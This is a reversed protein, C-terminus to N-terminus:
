LNQLTGAEYADAIEQFTYGRDNASLMGQLDYEEVIENPLYLTFGRWTYVPNGDRFDGRPTWADPDIAHAAMGEACFHDGIRLYNLCQKDANDRLANAIDERTVM